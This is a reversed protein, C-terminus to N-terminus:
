DRAREDIGKIWSKVRGADPDGDDSLNIYRTYYVRADKPRDLYKEYLVGLNYCSEKDLPSMDVVRLFATEAQIFDGKQLAGVGLNFYIDPDFAGAVAASPEPSRPPQPLPQVSVDFAAPLEPLTDATHLAMEAKEFAENAATFDGEQMHKRGAQYFDQAQGLDGSSEAAQGCRAQGAAIPVMVCCFFVVRAACPIFKM